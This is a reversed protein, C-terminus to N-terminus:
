SDSPWRWVLSVLTWAFSVWGYWSSPGGPRVTSDTVRVEAIWGMRQDHALVARVDAPWSDAVLVSDASDVWYSTAVSAAEHDM